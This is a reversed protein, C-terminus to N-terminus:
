FITTHLSVCQKIKGLGLQAGRRIITGIFTIWEQIVALNQQLKERGHNWMAYVFYLLLGANMIVIIAGIASSVASNVATLRDASPIFLLGLALTFSLVALSLSTMRELVKHKLPQFFMNAWLILMLVLILLAAQQYVALIRGFVDVVVLLLTQVQMASEWWYFNEHNYHRYLFGYMQVVHVTDLAKRHTWTAMFTLLPIGACIIFICVIGIPVWVRAHQGLYCEQNMNLIWYGKGWQALQHEPYYGAGDDLYYCAFIQLTAQAWAPYLVFCAIMVVLLEQRWWAMTRHINALSAWRVQGDLPHAEESSRARTSGQTLQRCLHGLLPPRGGPGSVDGSDATGGESGSEARSMSGSSTVGGGSVAGDSGSSHAHVTNGERFSDPAVSEGVPNEFESPCSSLMSTLAPTHITLVEPSGAVTALIDESILQSPCIEFRPPISSGVGRPHRKALDEALVAGCLEGDHVLPKAISPQPPAPDAPPPPSATPPPPPLLGTTSTAVALMENNPLPPLPLLLVTGYYTAEMGLNSFEDTLSDREREDHKREEPVVAAAAMAVAVMETATTEAPRPPWTAARPLQVEEHHQTSPMQEMHALSLHWKQQQQDGHQEDGERFAAGSSSREMEEVVSGEQIPLAIHVSSM